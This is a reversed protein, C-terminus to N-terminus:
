GHAIEVLDIEYRRAKEVITPQSIKLRRVAKYTSGTETLMTMTTNRKLEAVAEHMPQRLSVSGQPLPSQVQMYQPPDQMTITKEEGM